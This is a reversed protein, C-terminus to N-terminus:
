SSPDPPNPRRAPRRSAVSRLRSSAAGAVGGLSFLGHFSSMIPQRYREGVAIAQANMSVDLIANLAGLVVLALTVLAVNPAIVPLPLALCFGIAAVSTMVRSGLRGMLWGAVPLALIAGVAMSLLVLGLQGDSIGQRSKVAPIHAVWSALIAGNVFFITSVAWRARSPM